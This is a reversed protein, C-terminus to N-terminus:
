GTLDARNFDFFVLSSRATTPAPAAAANVGFDTWVYGAGVGLGGAVRALDDEGLVTPAQIAPADTPAERKEDPKRALSTM